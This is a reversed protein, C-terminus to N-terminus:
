GGSPRSWRRTRRDGPCSPSASRTTAAPGSRCPPAWGRATRSSRRSWTSTVWRGVGERRRGPAGGGVGAGRRHDPGLRRRSGLGRRATQALRQGPGPGADHPRGDAGGAAAGARRRPPRPAAPRRRRRRLTAAPPRAPDPAVRALAVALLPRNRWAADGAGRMARAAGDDDGLDLRVRALAVSADIRLRHGPELGIAAELEAAAGALDGARLLLRGYAYRGVPDDPRLRTAEGALGLAAEARDADLTSEWRAVAELLAEHVLDDAGHRLLHERWPVALRDVRGDPGLRVAYGGEAERVLLRAPAVYPALARCAALAEGPAAEALGVMAPGDDGVDVSGGEVNAGPLYLSATPRGVSLVPHQAVVAALEEAPAASAAEFVAGRVLTWPHWQLVVALVVV